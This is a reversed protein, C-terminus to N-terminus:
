QIDEPLALPVDPQILKIHAKQQGNLRNVGKYVDFLVMGDGYVSIIRDQGKVEKVQIEYM